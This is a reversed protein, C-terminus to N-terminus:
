GVRGVQNVAQDLTSDAKQIVKQNTQYHRNAEIMNVMERVINVNSQELHGQAVSYDEAEESEIDDEVPQYLNDGVKELDSSDEFDVVQLSGGELDGLHIQGNGDVHIDRENITQLPEGDEGLVPYGQQTVIQGENNLTFNGNRTYSEGMPTDVVFYGEGEIALDLENGTRQLNGQRHSTYTEDINVGTGLEGITAEKEGGSMRSLLMEPFAEQITEDKKYGTTDANALNNSVVDLQRKNTLMSAASTYLGKIM